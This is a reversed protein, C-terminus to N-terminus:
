FFRLFAELYQLIFSILQGFLNIIVPLITGFSLLIHFFLITMFLGLPLAQGHLLLVYLHLIEGKTLVLFSFFLCFFIFIVHIFLIISFYGESAPYTTCVM